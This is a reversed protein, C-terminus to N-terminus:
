RSGVPEQAFEARGSPLVGAEVSGPHSFPEAGALVPMTM